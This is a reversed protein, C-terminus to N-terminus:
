VEIDVVTVEHGLGTVPLPAEIDPFTPIQFNDEAVGVNGAADYVGVVTRVVDHEAFNHNVAYENALPGLVNEEVLVGNAFVEVKTSAVDSSESPVWFHRVKAVRM